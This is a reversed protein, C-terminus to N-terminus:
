AAKNPEPKRKLEGNTIQEIQYARLLPVKEPWQYVASPKIGLAKAVKAGSGFHNIVEQKDM